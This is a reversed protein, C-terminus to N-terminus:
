NEFGVCGLPRFYDPFGLRELFGGNVQSGIEFRGMKALRLTPSM